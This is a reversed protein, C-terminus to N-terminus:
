EGGIYNQLENTRNQTENAVCNEAAAKQETPDVSAQLGQVRCTADKRKIWARQQPLITQRTAPDISQWAANLAADAAKRNVLAQQLTAQREAEIADANAKEAMAANQLDIRQKNELNGRLLSAAIVEGFVDLKTGAAEFEAVVKSGDDTPQVSYDLDGKLYDAGKELGASDVAQSLTPMGAIERAKDADTFVQTGFVIKLNGTCFKKTSNPDEKTTRINEIVLKLEAIAARIKSAEITAMGDENKSQAVISKELGERIASQLATQAASDSCTSNPKGCASLLLTCALALMTSKKFVPVGKAM